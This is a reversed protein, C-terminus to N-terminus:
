GGGMFQVIEIRDGEHPVRTARESRPVITGNCEVAIRDLPFGAEDLYAGLTKDRECPVPEGNLFLVSSKVGKAPM